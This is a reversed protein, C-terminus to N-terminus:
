IFVIGQLIALVDDSCKFVLSFLLALLTEIYMLFRPITAEDKELAVIHCIDRVMSNIGALLKGNFEM